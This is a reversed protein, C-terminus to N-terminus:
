KNNKERNQERIDTTMGGFENRIASEYKDLIDINTASPSGDMKKDNRLVELSEPPLNEIWLKATGIFTREIYRPTKTTEIKNDILQKSINGTWLLIAKNIDTVCDLELFNYQESIPKPIWNKNLRSNWIANNRDSQQYSETYYTPPTWRPSSRPSNRPSNDPTKVRSTSPRNM